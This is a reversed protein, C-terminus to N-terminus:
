RQTNLPELSLVCIPSNNVLIRLDHAAFYIQPDDRASQLDVARLTYTRKERRLPPCGARSDGTPIRSTRDFEDPTSELIVGDRVAAGCM